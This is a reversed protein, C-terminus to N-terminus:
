HRMIECASTFFLREDTVDVFYRSFIPTSLVANSIVPEAELKLKFVAFVKDKKGGGTDLKTSHTESESACESLTSINGSGGQTCDRQTM